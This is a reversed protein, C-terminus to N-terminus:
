SLDVGCENMFTNIATIVRNLPENGEEYGANWSINWGFIFLESTGADLYNNIQKPPKAEPDMLWGLSMAFRDLARKKIKGKVPEGVLSRKTWEMNRIDFNIDINRLRNWTGGNSSYTFPFEELLYQVQNCLRRDIPKQSAPIDDVIDKYDTITREINRDYPLFPIPTCGYDTVLIFIYSIGNSTSYELFRREYKRFVRIDWKDALLVVTKEDRPDNGPYEAAIKNSQDLLIKMYSDLRGNRCIALFRSFIDSTPTGFPYTNYSIGSSSDNGSLVKSSLIDDINEVIGKGYESGLILDNIDHIFTQNNDSLRHYMDTNIITNYEKSSLNRIESMKIEKNEM